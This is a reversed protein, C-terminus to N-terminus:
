LSSLGDVIHHVHVPTNPKPWKNMQDNIILNCTVHKHKFVEGRGRVRIAEQEVM